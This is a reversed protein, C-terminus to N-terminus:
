AASGARFALVTWSADLPADSGRIFGGTGHVQLDDVTLGPATGAQGTAIADLLAVLVPWPARVAVRLRVRRYTGAAEAPLLEASSLTAGVRGAMDQVRQQLGAGAVADSAGDLLPVAVPTGAAAAQQQLAPLAAAIQAMRAGLIRRSQLSAAREAHWDLLPVAVVTWALALVGLLLLVALGQGARGDPLRLATM